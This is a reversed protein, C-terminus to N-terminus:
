DAFIGSFKQKYKRMREPFKGELERFFVQTQRPQQLLENLDAVTELLYGSLNGQRIYDEKAALIEQLKERAPEYSQFMKKWYGIGSTIEEEELICEREYILFMDYATRYDGSDSSKRAQRLFRPLDAPRAQELERSANARQAYEQAKQADKVCDKYCEALTELAEIYDPDLEIAKHLFRVAEDRDQKLGKGEHCCYALEYHAVPSDLGAAKKLWYIGQEHDEAVGSGYLYAIGLNCAGSADDQEAARRFWATAITEDKSVGEGDAYMNGLQLQADPNAASASKELWHAAQELNKEVGKGDYFCMGLMYQAEADGKVAAERFFAAAAKYNLKVDDGYFYCFGLYLNAEPIEASVMRFLVIATDIDRQSGEAYYLELARDFADNDLKRECYWRGGVIVATVVILLFVAARLFRM